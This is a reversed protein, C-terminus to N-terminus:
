SKILRINEVKKIHVASATASYTRCFAFHQLRPRSNAHFQQRPAVGHHLRMKEADCRFGSTAIGVCVLAFFKNVYQASVQLDSEVPLFVPEFRAVAEVEFAVRGM